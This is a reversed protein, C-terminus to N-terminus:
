LSAEIVEIEPFRQSLEAELRAVLLPISAPCSACVEGLRITAIGDAIDMIQLEGEAYGLEPSLATDIYQQVEALLSLANDNANM